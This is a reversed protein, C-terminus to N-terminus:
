GPGAAPLEEDTQNQDALFIPQGSTMIQSFPPEDITLRSAYQAFHRSLGYHAGMILTKEEDKRDAELVMMWCADMGMIGAIEQTATELLEDIDLLPFCLLALELLTAM